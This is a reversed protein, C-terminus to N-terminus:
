VRSYYLTNSMLFTIHSRPLTKKGWHINSIHLVFFYYDYILSYHKFKSHSKFTMLCCVLHKLNNLWSNNYKTSKLLIKDYLDLVLYKLFYGKFYYQTFFILLSFNSVCSPPLLLLFLTKRNLTSVQTWM